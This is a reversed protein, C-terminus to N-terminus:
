LVRMSRARENAIARQIMKMNRESV